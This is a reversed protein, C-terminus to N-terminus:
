KVTITVENSSVTGMWVPGKIGFEKGDTKNVYSVIIKHTGPEVTKLLIPEHKGLVGLFVVGGPPITIFNEATPARLRVRELIKYHDSERPKGDPGTWQVQLPRAIPHDFIILPRDSVNKLSVRIACGEEHKEVEARAVLGAVPQGGALKARDAVVKSVRGQEKLEQCQGPHGVRYLDRAPDKILLWVGEQGITFRIDVSTEVGGRAPQAIRVQKVTPPGKLVVTVGVVAADFRRELTGSKETFVAEDIKSVKGAVILDAEDVLVELPVAIFSAQAAPGTVGILVCLLVGWGWLPKRM